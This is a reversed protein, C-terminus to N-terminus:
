GKIKKLEERIKPLNTEGIGDILLLEEDSAYFVSDATKFKNLLKEALVPGIWRLPELINYEVVDFKDFAKREKIAGDIIRKMGIVKSKDFTEKEPCMYNERMREFHLELVRKWKEGVYFNHHAFSFHEIGKKIIRNGDFIKYLVQLKVNHFREEVDFVEYEIKM